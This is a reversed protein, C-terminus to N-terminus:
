EDDRRPLAIHIISTYKKHKKKSDRRDGHEKKSDSEKDDSEETENERFKKLAVGSAYIKSNRATERDFSDDHTEVTIILVNSM